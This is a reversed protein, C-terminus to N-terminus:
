GQDRLYLERAVWEAAREARHRWGPEDLSAAAEVLANASFATAVVNPSGGPYFSWRTQTDWPYGWAEGCTTDAMLTEMADRAVKRLYLDDREALLRIAAQGLLAPAKPVLSHHRRYLRRIDVPSRAHLQIIAQRRRPGGVLPAPWRVFLGDYPDPGRWRASAGIEILRRAAAGWEQVEARPGREPFPGDRERDTRRHRLSSARRPISAPRHAVLERGVLLAFALNTALYRRLLRRPEQALRYLWELGLRQWRPPARRTVGAVVDISGGVGMVLPVGLAPGHKGLWHEKRPSSMAVFLIQAGSDRIAAAVEPSEHDAFYGDRYGVLRLRPHTEGLRAVATELM